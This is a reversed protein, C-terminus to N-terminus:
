LQTKETILISKENQIGKINSEMNQITDDMSKRKFEFKQVIDEFSRITIEM